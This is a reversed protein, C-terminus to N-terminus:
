FDTQVQSASKLLEKAADVHQVLTGMNGKKLELKKTMVAMMPDLSGNLIKDWTESSASIIFEVTELDRNSAIRADICKGNKLDVFLNIENQLEIMSLVVSWKWDKATVAYENNSNIKEVFEKAWQESFAKM